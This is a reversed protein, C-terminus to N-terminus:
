PKPPDKPGNIIDGLKGQERNAQRAKDEVSENVQQQDKRQDSIAQRQLYGNIWGKIKYGVFLTLLAAIITLVASISGM